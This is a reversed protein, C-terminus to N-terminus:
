EKGVVLGDKFNVVHDDPYFYHVTWRNHRRHEKTIKLPKGLLKLVQVQTMGRQVKDLNEVSFRIKEYPKMQEETLPLKPREAQGFAEGVRGSFFLTLCLFLIALALRKM